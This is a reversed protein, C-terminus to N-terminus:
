GRAGRCGREKRNLKRGRTGSMGSWKGRREWSRRGKELWFVRRRGGHGGNGRARRPAGWEGWRPGLQGDM